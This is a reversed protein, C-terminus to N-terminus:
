SPVTPLRVETVKNQMLATTVPFLDLWLPLARTLDGEIPGSTSFPAKSYKLPAAERMEEGQKQRAAVDWILALLIRRPESQRFVCFVHQPNWRESSRCGPRLKGAVLGCRQKQELLPVFIILLSLPINQVSKKSSRSCLRSVCVCTRVKLSSWLSPVWFLNQTNEDETPRSNARASASQKPRM